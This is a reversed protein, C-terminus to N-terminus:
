TTAVTQPAPYASPQRSRQGIFGSEEPTSVMTVGVRDRSTELTLQHAWTRHQRLVIAGTRVDDVEQDQPVVLIRTVGDAVACPAVSDFLQVRADIDRGSRNDAFGLVHRDGIADVLHHWRDPRSTHLAVRGGTAVIRLVVQTALATTGILAVEPVDTGFLRATVARGTHDAGILQGCGGSEVRLTDLLAFAETGAAVPLHRHIRNAGTTPLSAALADFQRGDLPEAGHPWATAVRGADPLEDVRVLARVELDGAPGHSLSLTLTTSLPTGGWQRELARSLKRPDLSATRFRVRGASVHSWDEHTADLRAGQMLRTTVADIGVADLPTAALDCERLRRAVRQTTITATRLAGTAGGGRRAIANPCRRPDLRLIVLTDRHTTAPLPGLTREYIAAAPGAGGVRIGQVVIDISALPIDYPDICEALTTLPLPPDTTESGFPSLFTPASRAPSVRLVTILMEGTWRVGVVGTEAHSTPSRGHHRGSTPVDFPAPASGASRRRARSVLFGGRRILRGALSTRGAIPILTLAALVAVGLAAIGSRAGSFWWGVLGVALLVEIGVLTALGPLRAPTRHKTGIGM